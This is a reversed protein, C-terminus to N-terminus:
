NKLYAYLTMDQISIFPVERDRAQSCHIPLTILVSTLVSGCISVVGHVLHNSGIDVAAEKGIYDNNEHHSSVEMSNLKAM